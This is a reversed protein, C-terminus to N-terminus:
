ATQKPKQVCKVAKGSLSMGTIQHLSSILVLVRTFVLKRFSTMKLFSGRGICQRLAHVLKLLVTVNNLLKICLQNNFFITYFVNQNRLQKVMIARFLSQHTEKTTSYIYAHYQMHIVDIGSFKFNQRNNNLSLLYLM